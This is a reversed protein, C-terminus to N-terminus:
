LANVKYCLYILFFYLKTIRLKKSKNKIIKTIKTNFLSRHYKLFTNTNYIKKITNFLSVRFHNGLCSMNCLITITLVLFVVSITVVLVAKPSKRIEM